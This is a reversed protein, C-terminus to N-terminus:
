VDGKAVETEVILVNKEEEDEPQLLNNPDQKAPEEKEGKVLVKLWLLEDKTM